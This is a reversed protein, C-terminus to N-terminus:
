TIECFVPRSVSDKLASAYESNVSSRQFYIMRFHAMLSDKPRKMFLTNGGVHFVECCYIGNYFM